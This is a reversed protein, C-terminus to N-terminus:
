YAPAWSGWADWNMDATMSEDLSINRELALRQYRQYASESGIYL